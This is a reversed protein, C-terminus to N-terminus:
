FKLLNQDISVLIFHLYQNKLRELAALEKTLPPTLGFNSSMLAKICTKMVQTLSSSGSLFSPALTTVVNYISKLSAWPCSVGYDTTPDPQFEFEDM